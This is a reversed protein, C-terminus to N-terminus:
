RGPQVSVKHCIRRQMKWDAVISVTVPFAFKTYGLFRTKDLAHNRVEM